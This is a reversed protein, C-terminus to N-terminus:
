ALAGTLKMHEVVSALGEPLEVRPEWDLVHKIREISAERQTVLVERPRFQPQVDSGVARILYETLEAVTTQRGTGVNLIEGSADSDVALGVSRAVDEVHVFDMSQQGRGDIVPPEGKALRRLFTLIVSTYYADTPQGPGYVNFFRLALWSMKSRAGYFSLLQEGALKAICYPTIPRVLDTEKMPLSEPEGYVSASSAYVVRRVSARAAADLLNQTGILNVDMSETPDSISKNLCVAALHVVAEVGAVANEMVNAYRVDGEVVDVGDIGTVEAATSRDARYFNDLVRVRWGREVLDRVVYRGIYGLGGTVLATSKQHKM